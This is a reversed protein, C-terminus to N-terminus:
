RSSYSHIKRLNSKTKYGEPLLRHLSTIEYSGEINAVIVDIDEVKKEEIQYFQLLYQLCSGCPYTRAKDVVALAKFTYKGHAVAHDMASREACTGMGSIISETVCGGFYEGDTTLVAAGIKHSSRPCFSHDRVDKAAKILKQIEQPTLM